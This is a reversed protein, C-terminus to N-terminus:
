VFSAVAEDLCYHDALFLFPVLFIFVFFFICFCSVMLAVSIDAWFHLLYFFLGENLFIVHKDILSLISLKDVFSAFWYYVFSVHRGFIASPFNAWWNHLCITEADIICSFIHEGFLAFSYKM